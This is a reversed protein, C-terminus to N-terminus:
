GPVRRPDLRAAYGPARSARWAARRRRAGASASSAPPYRDSRARRPTRRTRRSVRANAAACSPASGARRRARRLSRACPILLSERHRGPRFSANRARARRINNNLVRPTRRDKTNSDMRRRHEARGVLDRVARARDVTRPSRAPRAARASRTRVRRAARRRAAREDGRTDGSTARSPGVRAFSPRAPGAAGARPRVRKRHRAGARRAGHPLAVSAHMLVRSKPVVYSPASDLAAKAPSPCRHTPNQVDGVPRRTRM